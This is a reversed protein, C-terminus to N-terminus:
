LNVHVVIELTLEGWGGSKTRDRDLPVVGRLCVKYDNHFEDYSFGDVHWDLRMLTPRSDHLKKFKWLAQTSHHTYDKNDASISLRTKVFEPSSILALWSKSVRRFKYDDRCEDYGSDYKFCAPRGIPTPDPLKKFKRISPNWIFLDTFAIALCILGNISGIVWVNKYPNNMPYDFDFSEIVSDNNLLSSLSCSELNYQYEHVPTLVFKHQTLVLRQIELPIEKPLRLLIETILERSLIPNKLISDHMSTSPFQSNNSPKSRKPHQHEESEM